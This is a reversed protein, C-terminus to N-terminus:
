VMDYSRGARRTQGRGHYDEKGDSDSDDSTSQSSETIKHADQIGAEQGAHVLGMTEEETLQKRGIKRFSFPQSLNPRNSVPYRPTPPASLFDPPDVPSLPNHSSTERSM